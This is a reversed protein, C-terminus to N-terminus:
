YAVHGSLKTAGTRREVWWELDPLALAGPRLVARHFARLDFRDGLRRRTADRLRVIADDGLKYALAQAPLDCSYRISETRVEREPLFANERLYARGEELSWGLANMGTDVVLRSTLFADMTLRGFREAPTRYLGLEGALTAAYEAWGENFANVFALAHLPHFDRDASQVSLHLHHGPVLEHYALAGVHYLGRRSLNAANFVYEGTPHAPTPSRYYGFTMSGELAHPLPTAASPHAPRVDFVEDYAPELREAYEEFLSAIGEADTRRWTPDADLAAAYARDDGDAGAEARAAAMGARVREMRELGAEHVERPSLKRTTHFRVLRAYAVDGNGYQGLGVSEPGEGGEAVSRTLSEFARALPGDLREALTARFGETARAGAARASDRFADTLLAALGPLLTRAQELQPRPMRIGREAQGRTRAALQEIFRACDAAFALCRDLDGSHRFPLARAMEALTQVALGGCYPTAAFMGFFGIGVPDFALWYLDDALVRAELQHRALRLAVAVPDPLRDAPITEIERLLAAAEDAASGVGEPDVDPLTWNPHGLRAAGPGIRARATATDLVRLARGLGAEGAAHTM